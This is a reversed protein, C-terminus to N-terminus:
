GITPATPGPGTPMVTAAPEDDVDTDDLHHSRPRGDPARADPEGRPAGDDKPSPPHAPRPTTRDAGGEPTVGGIAAAVVVALM